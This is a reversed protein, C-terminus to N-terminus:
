ALAPPARGAHRSALVPLRLPSAQFAGRPPSAPRRRATRGRRGLASGLEDAVRLLSRVLCLAFLACLLQLAVGALVVPETSTLLDVHGRQVLREVHEQLVFALPPLAALKWAPLLRPGDTRFSALARRVLVAAVLMFFAATVAPAYALYDGSAHLVLRHRTAGPDLLRAVATHGFTESSLLFPLTLLM